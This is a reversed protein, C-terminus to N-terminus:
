LRGLGKASAPRICPLAASGCGPLTAALPSGGHAALSQAVLNGRPRRFGAWV